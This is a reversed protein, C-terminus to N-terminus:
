ESGIGYEEIKSLLAPYSIELLKIARSKNGHTKALAKRILKEEILREMKKISYENESIDYIDEAANAKIYDPIDDEDITSKDALVMIREIVNELERINGPWSYNLLYNRAHPTIREIHISCLNNYKKIFHNILQPIDERRERLPPIHLPIINLRYFLDERFTGNKVEQALDRATAAIVLVNIFRSREEGVRRIEGEQLVRLLKVQLALPLEGIEDLLITGEDAEEFLGRRDYVAGTFAGRKHGFLESELLNDPIAGCNIAQFTKDSRPGNYHIAKAILEKGTGSEGTILVPNKHSAIKKIMEFIRLMQSSNGIINDFYYKRLVEQRLLLNEKRLREREDAKKLTLLIEAPKFPKSIYDYAGLQMTEVALDITGYASMTIITSSINRGQLSKLFQIGDVNPMKIDCLIVDFQQEELLNIAEQGDAAGAVEYGEKVLITKLLHRMNEEDDIILITKAQM